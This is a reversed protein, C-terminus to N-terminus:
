NIIKIGTVKWYGDIKDLEVLGKSTYGTRTTDQFIYGLMIEYDYGAENNEINNKNESLKINVVHMTYKGEYAAQAYMLNQRNKLINEYAKETMLYKLVEDNIQVAENIKNIDSSLSSALVSEYNEVEKANVTYLDLLLDKAIEQARLEETYLISSRVIYVPEENNYLMVVNHSRNMSLEDKNLSTMEVLVDVSGTEDVLKANLYTDKNTKLYNSEINKISEPVKRNEKINELSGYVINHRSFDEKNSVDNNEFEKLENVTSNFLRIDNEAASIKWLNNTARLSDEYVESPIVSLFIVLSNENPSMTRIQARLHDNGVRENWYINEHKEKNSYNGLIENLVKDINKKNGYFIGPLEFHKSLENSFFDDVEEETLRSPVFWTMNLIKFDDKVWADIGLTINKDNNLTYINRSEEVVSNDIINFDINQETLVKEIEGTKLPFEYQVVPEQSSNLECGIVAVSMIIILVIVLIKNM